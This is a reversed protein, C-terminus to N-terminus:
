KGRKISQIQGDVITVIMPAARTGRDYRWIETTSTGVKVGYFNRVDQTSVQQSSAKGCKTLLEAVSMDASVLWIGCRFLEDPMCIGPVIALLACITTVVRM